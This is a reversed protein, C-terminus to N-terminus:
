SGVVESIVVRVPKGSKPDLTGTIGHLDGAQALPQGSASIRAEVTVARFDSLKRQPMMAQSDDLTFKVPWQGVALRTVAVPPGPSDKARAFVFLAQGASARARLKPDLEITGQIQVTGTQVTGTQVGASGGAALGGLRQDEAINATIIRGDPSDAPLVAALRQWTEVAQSYHKQEHQLSAQLWLAKPHRPDLALARDLYRAPEGALTGRTSATADAYNAWADANLADLGAAKAYAELAKRYDHAIRAKEAQALLATGEPTVKFAPAPVASAAAPATAPMGAHKRAEAAEASRGLFEYSQALLAWDAPTGGQSNLRKALKETVDAVSGIQGAGTVGAAAAPGAAGPSRPGQTMSGPQGMVDVLQTERADLKIADPTGWHRFLAMAAATAVVGSLFWIIRERAM